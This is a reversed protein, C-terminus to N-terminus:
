LARGVDITEVEATELVHLAWAAALAGVQTVETALDGGHGAETDADYSQARAVEGLEEVLAALRQVNTPRDSDLTWGPHKVCARDYEERMAERPDAVGLVRLWGLCAGTVSCLRLYMIRDPVAVLGSSGIGDAVEGFLRTLHPLRWPEWTEDIYPVQASDLIHDLRHANNMPIEKETGAKRPSDNM